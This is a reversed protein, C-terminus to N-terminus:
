TLIPTLYLCLLAHFSISVTQGGKVKLKLKCRELYRDLVFKFYIKAAAAALLLIPESYSGSGGRM